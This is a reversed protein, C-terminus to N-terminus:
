VERFTSDTRLFRIKGLPLADAKVVVPNCRLSQATEGICAEPLSTKCPYRLSTGQTTLPLPTISGCLKVDVIELYEAIVELNKKVVDYFTSRPIGLEKCAAVVTM